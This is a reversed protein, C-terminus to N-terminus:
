WSFRIGVNVGQAWFDTQSFLMAPRLQSAAPAAGFNPIRNIDLVPDIEHGPRIVNTWYICSYGAFVSCNPTVQYGVNIGIQPVVSCENGASRGINAGPLALLGGNFVTVAGTPSTARQFGSIELTQRNTGVAVSGLLEVYCAGSYLTADFGVLAGYFQNRTKFTDNAVFALGALGPFPATAAFTPTETISLEEELNLYQFGALVDVRGTCTACVNCRGLIDAGCFKTKNEIVVNGTASGPFAVFESNPLGTNISTFPRALVPGGFVTRDTREELCFFGVEVGYTRCPDLWAGARLRVGSFSDQDVDGGFLVVTGPNGLFGVPFTAPGTTVLPPVTDERIRWRLYEVSAWFEGGGYAGPAYSIPSPGSLGTPPLTTVPCAAPAGPSATFAPTATTTPTGKADGEATSKPTATATPKDAQAAVPAGTVPVPEARVTGSIVAPAAPQFPILPPSQAAALGGVALALASALSGHRM